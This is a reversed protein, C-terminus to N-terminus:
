HSGEEEAAAHGIRRPEAPGALPMGLYPNMTGFAARNSRKATVGNLIGGLLRADARALRRLTEEAQSPLTSEARLVLLTSGALNAVLMADAVALVPTTDIMVLDFRGACTDLCEAFSPHMLLESPNVPPVGASLVSLGSVITPRVAESLEAHGALVEALGPEPYQDFWSAVRGRRLDADILLVRKGAEAFLVALNVSVFTKGAGATPSTVAMVNARAPRPSGAAALMTFHLAARVNRLGEVAMSHPANRALLFHDHLAMGPLADLDEDEDYLLADVLDRGPPPSALHGLRLAEANWQQTRSALMRELEVQERSYCIDGLMPLGLSAEADGVNAVVPKVRQRFSVMGMALCVGLLAGGATLPGTGMGLPAAPMLAADVVRIPLARDLNALSLQELRNRLGLYTDEAVKVDRTLAVSKRENVSLNQLKADMDRRERTLQQIQNDVTKVENSEETFRQLQKTRELKLLAIQRQYDMSGNLYSQADQSPQISGEKARYRTLAAEARELEDRVRPLEGTLYAMAAAGEQRRLGAQEGIYSEAIGNVLPAVATRSPTEWAIRITSSDSGDSDIRLDRAITDITQATDHRTVTFRTGPHADIRAVQFTVGGAQVREGVSGELLPKGDLWMRYTNTPLVELVMPVNLMADPVDFARVELQEGGWAYGLREPWPGSLRGPEALHAAVGGILPARVPEVSVDLRMREVVPGVVSRSRLMGADFPATRKAADTDVENQRIQILTHARYVYPRSIAAVGAIVAGLLGAAVIWGAHDMWARVHM